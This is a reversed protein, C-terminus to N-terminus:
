YGNNEVEIARWWKFFLYFLKTRFLNSLRLDVITGYNDRLTDRYGFLVYM